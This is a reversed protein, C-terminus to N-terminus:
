LIEENNTIEHEELLRMREDQLLQQYVAYYQRSLTTPKVERQRQSEAAQVSQLGSMGAEQPAILQHMVGYKICPWAREQLGSDSFEGDSPIAIPKKLYSVKVEHSLEYWDFLDLTRTGGERNLGYRTFTRERLSPGSAQQKVTLIMEVDSPLDYSVQPGNVSFSTEGVAFLFPYTGLIVDNITERIRARPYRPSFSVRTNAAHAAPETGQYGRGFPALTLSSATSNAVFVMEEGIEAIGRHVQSGQAGDVPVSLTSADVPDTLWTLQGQDLTYGSLSGLTEEVLSDIDYRAM